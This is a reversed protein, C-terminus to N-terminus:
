PVIFIGLNKLNRKNNLIELAVSIYILFKLWWLNRSYLQYWGCHRKRFVFVAFLSDDRHCIGNGQRHGRLFPRLLRTRHVDTVAVRLWSLFAVCAGVCVCVCVSAPPPRFLADKLVTRPISMGFLPCSIRQRRDRNYAEPHPKRILRNHTCTCTCVLSNSAFCALAMTITHVRTM